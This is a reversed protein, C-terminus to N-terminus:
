EVLETTVTVRVGGGRRVGVTVKTVNEGGDKARGGGEWEGGGGM